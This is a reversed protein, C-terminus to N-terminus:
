SQFHPAYKSRTLFSVCLGSRGLMQKEGLLNHDIEEYVPDSPRTSGSFLPCNKGLTLSAVSPFGQLDDLGERQSWDLVSGQLVNGSSPGTWM